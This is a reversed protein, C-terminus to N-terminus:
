GPATDPTDRDGPSLARRAIQEWGDAIRELPMGRVRRQHLVVEPSLPALLADATYEADLDAAAQRLLIVVHARYAAYAGVGFRRGPAGATQGALLLDAHADVHRLLARGFALLRADAPAGPGLPAPGRIFAEQFARESTELLALALSARDGFRRFVTGKGVGAEAAIADISTGAVGRRAFLRQAAELIRQRNRAADSREAPLGLIPLPRPPPPEPVTSHDVM